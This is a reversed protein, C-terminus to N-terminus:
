ATSSPPPSPPSPEGGPLSSRTSEPSDAELTAESPKPADNTGTPASAPITPPDVSPTEVPSVPGGLPTEWVELLARVPELKFCEPPLDGLTIEYGSLMNVAQVVLNAYPAHDEDTRYNHRDNFWDTLVKAQALGRALQESETEGEVDEPIDDPRPFKTNIEDDAAIAAKRLRAFELAEPEDLMVSAPLNPTKRRKALRLEIVQEDHRTLCEVQQKTAGTGWEIM